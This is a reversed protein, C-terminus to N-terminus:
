NRGNIIEPEIGFVRRVYDAGTDYTAEFDLQLPTQEPSYALVYPCPLETKIFVKDTGHTLLVTISKIEM